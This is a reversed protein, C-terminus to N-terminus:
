YLNESSSYVWKNTKKDTQKQTSNNISDRLVSDMPTNDSSSAVNDTYSNITRGTNSFRKNEYNTANDVDNRSPTYDKSSNTLNNTYSSTVRGTNSYGRNENRLTNDIDSKDYTHTRSTNSLDNNYSGTTRGTNSYKKNENKTTSMDSKGEVYNNFSDSSSDISINTNSSERKEYKTDNNMNTQNPVYDKSYLNSNNGYIKKNEENIINNGIDYNNDTSGHLSNLNKYSDIDDSKVTKKTTTNKDKM